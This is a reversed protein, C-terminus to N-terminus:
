FKRGGGGHPRGSRSTHVTSRGAGGGRSGGGSVARAILQQTVFSNILVDKPDDFRFRADARYAMNFGAAQKQEQKMAYERKVNLCVTGGCFASVLFALLAEYWRISRHRVVAEENYQGSPIGAEYYGATEEIMREVGGLYDQDKFYSISEDLISEIRRDTLYRIMDGSTSIDIERNDMDILYLVGSAAEGVGFGGDDYFDDAYEQASRGGTNEATVLVADMGTKERLGSLRRELQEAEGDTFLGAQDFVRRDSGAGTGSSGGAYVTHGCIGSAVLLIVAFLAAVATRRGATKGSRMM